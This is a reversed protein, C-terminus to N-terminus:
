GGSTAIVSRHTPVVPFFYQAVHLSVIGISGLVKETLTPTYNVIIQLTLYRRLCHKSGYPINLGVLFFSTAGIVSVPYLVEALHWSSFFSGADDNQIAL